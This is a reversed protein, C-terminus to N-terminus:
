ICDMLGIVTLLTSCKAYGNFDPVSLSPVAYKVANATPDEVFMLVVKFTFELIPILVKVM